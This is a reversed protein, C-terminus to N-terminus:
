RAGRRLAWLAALALLVLGSEWPRGPGTQCGLCGSSGGTDVAGGVPTPEPEDDPDPEERPDDEFACAGAECLIGPPCEVADSWRTCGQLDEVCVVRSSASTCERAGPECERPCELVCAGGQCVEQDACFRLSSWVLCGEAARTCERYGPGDCTTAGEEPCADDCGFRCSGERCTSGDPCLAADSWVGCGADSLVCTQVSDGVCTAEGVSCVDECASVCRDEECVAGAGCPTAGGWIPCGDPDVMCRQVQGDATCRSDGAGCEPACGAICVGEVCAEDPQCTRTQTWTHCGNAQEVCVRVGDGFCEQTRPECEAECADTCAGGECAFGAPCASVPGWAHCGDASALCAQLGGEACRTEGPTCAATCAGGCFGGACGEDAGCATVGSWVHCGNARRQCVRFGAGACERADAACEATCSPTCVGGLCVADAGCSAARSWDLCGSSQRQCTQVGGAACQTAGEACVDTCEGVCQGASCVQRAPCATPASFTHCGSAAAQCVVTANGECAREGPTCEPTCSPVCSGEACVEDADCAAAAGWVGCGQPGVACAQEANGFCRRDGLECEDTCSQTCRGAVCTYGSACTTLRWELCGSAGVLCLEPRQASACRREGAMCADTCARSCAGDVCSQGAPCTAAAGWVQCGAADAQCTQVQAGSCRTTGLDCGDGCSAVCQGAACAQAAGCAQFNGFYRCGNADQVCAEVGGPACRREGAACAAPCIPTLTLGLQYAGADRDVDMFLFYDGPALDAEVVASPSAPWDAAGCGLETAGADCVSRLYLVPAQGGVAEALLHSPQTVEFTYVREPGAGGCSGSTTNTYGDGLNGVFVADSGAIVTPAACSDGAPVNKCVGAECPMGDPCIAGSVWSACGQDNVRCQQIQQGQCRRAGAECANACFEGFTVTLEYAGVQDDWADLVLSYSGPTLEAEIRSGLGGPPTADDNCAVESGPDDCSRRLYLTTDFGTLQATFPVPQTVEFRLVRDPGSGACSGELDNGYGGALTGRLIQSRAEIVEADACTDASPRPTCAGGQCAAGAECAEALAVPQGCTDVSWVDAGVCAPSVEPVCRGGQCTHGSRCAADSACSPACTRSGSAGAVCAWGERCAADSACAFCYGGGATACLAEGPSAQCLAEVAQHIYVVGEGDVGEEPLENVVFCGGRQVYDTAGRVLIGVQEQAGNFVGSGSNGGFADVTANFLELAPAGSSTVRGGPAYKVPIGSPYGILTVAEGVGLAEDSGRVRAPTRGVVPRDLRVVAFDRDGELARAVVASCAYVDEAASIPALAGAADYRYDFVMRTGACSGADICHGATVVLDPAILTGSCQGGSPQEVFRQDACLQYARGLSTGLVQVAEPDRQDLNEASVLVVSADRVLAAWSPDGIEWADVRDDVGYVVPRSTEQTGEGGQAGGGDPACATGLLLAAASLIVAQSQRTM